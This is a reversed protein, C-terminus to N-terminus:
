RAHRRSVRSRFTQILLYSDIKNILKSVFTRNLFTVKSKNLQAFYSPEIGNELCYEYGLKNMTTFKFEGGNGAELCKFIKERLLVNDDHEINQENLEILYDDACLGSLAAASGPEVRSIFHATQGRKTMEFGLPKDEGNRLRRLTCHKLIIADLIAQNLQMARQTPFQGNQQQQQQQQQMSVSPGQNEQGGFRLTSSTSRMTGNRSVPDNVLNSNMQNSQNMLTLLSNEPPTFCEQVKLQKNRTSLDVKRGSLWKYTNPDAVFLNLYNQRNSSASRSRTSKSSKNTGSTLQNRFKSIERQILERDRATVRKGNIEILRDYARLGGLHAPSNPEVNKIYCAGSETSYAVYFGYGDYNSWTLLHCLRPEPSASDPVSAMQMNAAAVSGSPM